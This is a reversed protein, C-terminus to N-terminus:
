SNCWISLSFHMLHSIHLSIQGVLATIVVMIHDSKFYVIYFNSTAPLYLQVRPLLAAPSLYERRHAVHLTKSVVRRTHHTHYFVIFFPAIIGEQESLTTSPISIEAFSGSTRLKVGAPMPIVQHAVM